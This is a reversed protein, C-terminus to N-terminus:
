VFHLDLKRDYKLGAKQAAVLAQKLEERTIPRSIKPYKHAQHAPHYQAMLNVAVGKSLSRAAWKVLSDTGGINHPMILHRLLLGRTAIGRTDAALAGVQRDMEKIAGAAVKPYGKADAWYKVALQEDQFKFDPLYIDMIGDLAKITDPHDYGGTNYVLPVKLGRPIALRVARLIHPVVHTPTVFNINHCGRKQLAVMTKALDEHQIVRGDGRHAIEWNQCFVCRLNCASFFVTGSGGKGVLPKEEGFHPGASAVVLKATSQCVGTEGKLRNAGCARPCLKCSRFVEWMQEERRKLLGSRDAKLYAAEFLAPKIPASGRSAVAAPHKKRCAAGVAAAGLSGM